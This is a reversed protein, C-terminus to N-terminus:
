ILDSDKLDPQTDLYEQVDMTEPLRDLLADDNLSSSDSFLNKIKSLANLLNQIM